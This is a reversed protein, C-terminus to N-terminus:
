SFIEHVVLFHVYIYILCKLIIFNYLYDATLAKPNTACAPIRSQMRLFPRNSEQRKRMLNLLTNRCKHSFPLRQRTLYNIKKWQRNRYRDHFPHHRSILEQNCAKVLIHM